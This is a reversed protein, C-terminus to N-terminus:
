QQQMALRVVVLKYLPKGKVSQCKTVAAFAYEM